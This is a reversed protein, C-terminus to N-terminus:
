DVVFAYELFASFPKGPDLRTSPFSVDNPSNPFGQPEIAIASHRTMPIQNKGYLSGDLSNGTYVQVAPMDTYVRLERHGSPETLILAPNDLDRGERLVFSHDFGGEKAIQPNASDLRPDLVTPERFDFPGDAVAERKGTPISKDDTPLYADALIQLSHQRISEGRIGALNFYPHSTFNVVTPKDTSAHFDFRLGNRDTLRIDVSFELNGPFGMEGDPSHRSFRLVPGDDTERISSEFLQYSFGQSGGHLCNPGDNADLEFQTGDLKFKAGAIRNAFRGVISGLFPTNHGVYEEVSDFGLIVDHPLGVKNPAELEILTAGFDLFTARLGHLNSLTLAHITRGDPLEGIAEKYIQNSM